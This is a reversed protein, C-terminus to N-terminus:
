CFIKFSKLQSLNPLQLCHLALLVKDFRLLVKRTIDDCNRTESSKSSDNGNDSSTQRTLEPKAKSTSKLKHDSSKLCQEDRKAGSRSHATSKHYVHSSSKLKTESKDSSMNEEVLQQPKCGDSTGSKHMEKQSADSKVDNGSVAPSKREVKSNKLRSMRDSGNASKQTSKETSMERVEQKDVRVANPQKHVRGTGRQDRVKQSQSKDGDTPPQVSSSQHSSGGKTHKDTFKNDGHLRQSDRIDAPTTVQQPVSNNDEGINPQLFLHARAENAMRVQESISDFINLTYGTPRNTVINLDSYAKDAAAAVSV